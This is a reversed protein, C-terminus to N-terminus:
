LLKGHTKLKGPSIMNSREDLFIWNASRSLLTETKDADTKLRTKTDVGCYYYYKINGFWGFTNGNKGYIMHQYYDKQTPTLTKWWVPNLTPTYHADYLEIQVNNIAINNIILYRNSSEKIGSFEFEITNKNGNIYNYYFEVNRVHEIGPAFSETCVIENNIKVVVSVTTNSHFVKIPIQHSFNLIQNM